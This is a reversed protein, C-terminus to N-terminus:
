RLIADVNGVTWIGNVSTVDGIATGNAWFQYSFDFDYGMGSMKTSAIMVGHPLGDGNVPGELTFRSDPGYVIIADYSPVVIGRCVTFFSDAPINENRLVM